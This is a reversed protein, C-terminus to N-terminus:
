CKAGKYLIMTNLDCHFSNDILGLKKRNLQYTRMTQATGGDKLQEKNGFTFALVHTASKAVAANRDFFGEGTMETAGNVIADGIELLSDRGIKDSFLQHYYNSTGGPNTKWDIGGRDEFERNALDFSCPLYLTLKSVYGQLFVSVALHDAWAAGGSVVEFTSGIVFKTAVFLMKEYVSANLKAGDSGRGATGIIALTSSM